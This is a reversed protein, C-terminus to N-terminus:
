RMETGCCCKRNYITASCLLNNRFACIQQLVFLRFSGNFFVTGSCNNDFREPVTFGNRFPCSRSVTGSCNETGSCYKREPVTNKTGSCYKREPLGYRVCFAPMARYADKVHTLAKAEKNDVSLYAFIPVATMTAWVGDRGPLEMKVGTLGLVNLAELMKSLADARVLRKLEQKAAHSVGEPWRAKNFKPLFGLLQRAWAKHRVNARLNLFSLWVPILSKRGNGDVTSEDISLMIALVVVNPQVYHYLKKLRHVRWLARRQTESVTQAYFFVCIQEKEHM